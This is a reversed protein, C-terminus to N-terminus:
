AYRSWDRTAADRRRRRGSPSALGGDLCILLDDDDDDSDEVARASPGSFIDRNCCAWAVLGLLTHACVAVLLAVLLVAVVILAKGAGDSAISKGFRRLRRKILLARPRRVEHFLKGNRYERLTPALGGWGAWWRRWRPTVHVFGVLVYRRGTAGVPNAGHLAQSPHAWLEGVRVDALAHHKFGPFVTFAGSEEANELSVGFSLECGDRHKRLRRQAAGGGDYKVVFLDRLTLTAAGFGSGALGYRSRLYPFVEAAAFEALESATGNDLSRAAIDTTPYHAHRDTQWGGRAAAAAEGSAVVRAAFAREMFPYERHVDVNANDPSLLVVPLPALCCVLALAVTLLGADLAADEGVPVDHYRLRSDRFARAWARWVRALAFPLLALAALGVCGWEALM